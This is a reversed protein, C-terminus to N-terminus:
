NEHNKIVKLIFDRLTDDASSDWELEVDISMGSVSTNMDVLDCPYQHYTINHAIADALREMAEDTLTKLSVEEQKAQELLNEMETLMIETRRVMEQMQEIQNKM